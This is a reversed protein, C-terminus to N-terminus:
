SEVLTDRDPSGAAEAADNVDEGDLGADPTLGGPMLAGLENPIQADGLQAAAGVAAQLRDPHFRPDELQMAIRDLEAEVDEIGFEELATYVSLAPPDSQMKQLINQVHVPDDVRLASPWKVRNKRWGGMDQGNLFFEFYRPRRLSKTYGSARGEIPGSSMKEYIHLILQNLKVMGQGFLTERAQTSQVTPTMSLNTMVGSQNTLTEGFSSRPRGGLDHLYNETREFQAGMEPMAGEWNLYKLGTSNPRVPIVAGDGRIANRIAQTSQGSSFDMVPPNAYKRIIDAQQSYLQDLYRNIEAIQQAVGTPETEDGPLNNVFEILPMHGELYPLRQSHVAEGMVRVWNGHMDFWDLVKTTGMMSDANPMRSEDRSTGEDHEMDSVIQSAMKPHQRKLERTLRRSVIIAEVIKDGDYVPYVNQPNISSWKVCKAGADWWVYIWGRRKLVMNHAVRRFVKEAENLEWNYYLLGEMQEALRRSPEDVGPPMVQIGPLTGILQEVAGDVMPQVYNVTISYRHEEAVLNVGDWHEGAYASAASDYEANRASNLGRLDDYLQRVEQASLSPVSEAM